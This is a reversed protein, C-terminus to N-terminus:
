PLIPGRPWASFPSVTYSRLYKDWTVIGNLHDPCLNVGSRFLDYRESVLPRPKISVSAGKTELYKRAMDELTAIQPGGFDPLLKGPHSLANVMKLAVEREDVSQFKMEDPIILEHAPSTTALNELMKLVFSHFQTARLITYPIGSAEILQEVSYKAQYYPYNSKDVGVISIYIFHRTVKPDIARLLNRTGGLDVESYNRPDSACHLIVEVEACAKALGQNHVLDGNYLKVSDPLPIVTRTSLVGVEYRRQLLYKVVWQGLTGSGGTVLVNRM